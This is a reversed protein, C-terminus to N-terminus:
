LKVFLKSNKLSQYHAFEANLYSRISLINNNHEGYKFINDYIIKNSLVYDKLNDYISDFNKDDSWTNFLEFAKKSKCDELDLIKIKTKDKINYIIEKVGFLYNQTHIDGLYLHPYHQLIYAIIKSLALKNLKKNSKMNPHHVNFVDNFYTKVNLIEDDTIDSLRKLRETEESLCMVEDIYAGLIQVLGSFFRDVPNRIIIYIDKKNEFIFENMNKVGNKQFFTDYDPCTKDHGEGFIISAYYRGTLMDIYVREDKKTDWDDVRLLCVDYQYNEEWHNIPYSAMHAFFRSGTKKYGMVIANDFITFTPEFFNNSIGIRESLALEM